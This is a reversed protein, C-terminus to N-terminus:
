IESGTKDTGLFNRNKVTHDKIGTKALWKAWHLMIRAQLAFHEPTHEWHVLHAIEHSIAELLLSLRHPYEVNQAIFKGAKTPKTTPKFDRTTKLFSLVFTDDEEYWTCAAMNDQAKYIPVKYAKVRLLKRWVKAPVLHEVENFLVRTWECSKDFKVRALPSGANKM